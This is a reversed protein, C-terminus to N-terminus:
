RRDPLKSVGLLKSERAIDRRIRLPCPSVEVTELPRGPDRGLGVSSSLKELTIDWDTVSQQRAYVVYEVGAQFEYGGCMGERATVLVRIKGSISGKWASDVFFTVEQRDDTSAPVMAIQGTIPDKLAVPNLHKISAVRGRFVAAAIQFSESQSLDPCSCAMLTSVPITPLLLLSLILKTIM